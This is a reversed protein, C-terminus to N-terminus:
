WPKKRREESEENKKKYNKEREKNKRVKEDRDRGFTARELDYSKKGRLENENNSKELM